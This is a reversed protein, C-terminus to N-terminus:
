CVGCLGNLLSWVFWEVSELSSWEVSELCVM